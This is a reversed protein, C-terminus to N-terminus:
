TVCTTASRTVCSVRCYCCCCCTSHNAAAISGPLALENAPESVTSSKRNNGTKKLNSNRSPTKPAQDLPPLEAEIDFDPDNVPLQLSTMVADNLLADQSQSPSEMGSCLSRVDDCVYDVCSKISPCYYSFHRLFFEGRPFVPRM